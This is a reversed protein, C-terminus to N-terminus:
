MIMIQSPNLSLNFDSYKKYLNKHFCVHECDYGEYVCDSDYYYQAKYICSGGFASNVRIPESGIMPQWLTFWDILYEQYDNWWNYRYAWSDYNLMKKNYLVFSNGCMAKINDESLYGFSNLIGDISLTQFDLDVVIVYDIDYNDRIYNKCLNRYTAIAKTRDTTKHQPGTPHTSNLTESLYQKNTNNSWYKLISSTSDKSDNEYIFFHCKNFYSALNDLQILNTELKNAVDRCLGTIAINLSSSYEKGLYYYNNFSDIFEDLIKINMKM